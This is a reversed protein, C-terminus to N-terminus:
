AVGAVLMPLDDCRIRRIWLERLNSQIKIYEDIQGFWCPRRREPVSWWSGGGAYRGGGRSEGRLEGACAIGLGVPVCGTELGVLEAM